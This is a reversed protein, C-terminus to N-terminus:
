GKLRRLIADAPERGVFTLISALRDPAALVFTCHTAGRGACGIEECGLTQGTAHEFFGQLMGTVIPDLMGGAPRLVAAGYSHELRAVVIGHEAAVSLDFALRGWGHAGFYREIFVLCAEFPLSGLAPKRLDILRRDVTRAIQQGATRGSAKMVSQWAGPREKEAVGHLSRLLEPTVSVVRIDAPDLVIGTADRTFRQNAVLADLGLSKLTDDAPPM